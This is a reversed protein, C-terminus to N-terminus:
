QWIDDVLSLKSVINLWILCNEAQEIREKLEKLNCAFMDRAAESMLHAEQRTVWGVLNSSLKSFESAELEVRGASTQTEAESFVPIPHTTAMVVMDVQLASEKALAMETQTTRSEHVGNDHMQECDAMKLISTYIGFTQGQTQTAKSATIKSMERQEAECLCQVSVDSTRAMYKTAHSPTSVSTEFQSHELHAMHPESQSFRHVKAPPPANSDHM